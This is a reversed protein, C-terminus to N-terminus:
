TRGRREQADGLAAADDPATGMWDALVAPWGARTLADVVVPDDDVVVAVHRGAALAALATLKMQRAPRRNGPPRLYLATVALGHRDLWRATDRRCYEPRGSLAVVECTAAHDALLQAGRDLLGDAPAAAFFGTWDKPTRQLHHLRHRTDALVGDIDFVALPRADPTGTM